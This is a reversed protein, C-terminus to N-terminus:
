VIVWRNAVAYVLTVSSGDEELSVTQLSGDILQSGARTVVIAVGDGVPGAKVVVQDGVAPSAPLTWARNATIAATGYNLGETLTGGEDAIDGASLEAQGSIVNDNLMSGEVADAVITLAGGAAVTADGSISVYSPDTGDSQLFQAATGKALASPDGSADGLILSGRTLGAMKALTVANDAITLAGANLTADGSMAVYATDTGDSQLFTHAAGKALASPDGSADGIIVSGRALGAMKALTVQNDAIHATDISGDVIHESDVSDDALKTGDVADAALMTRVVGSTDIKLSSISSVGGEYALGAGAISGSIGVKDSVVALSGSTSVGIQGSSDSLGPGALGAAVDDNMMADTVKTAGISLVGAALTADGSMSVYSIDTGDSQLFAHEAGKALLASAGSSNGYIISGRAVADVLNLEAATATVAALKTFDASELDDNDLYNLEAATADVAALKTFDAQVLGSVGDLLNLEAATSTVAAGALQLGGVKAVNFDVDNALVASQANLTLIDTDGDAGITSGNDIALSKLAVDGDADVAFGTMTVTGFTADGDSDFSAGSIGASASLTAASSAGVSTVSAATVAEEFVTSGSLRAPGVQFKYAM